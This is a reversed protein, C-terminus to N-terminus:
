IGVDGFETGAEVVNVWFHYKPSISMDLIGTELSYSMVLAFCSANTENLNTLGSCM